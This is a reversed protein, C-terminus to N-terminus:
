IGKVYFREVNVPQKEKAKEGNKQILRDKNREYYDKKRQKDAEPNEERNKRTKQKIYEKNAEYYDKKRQKIM